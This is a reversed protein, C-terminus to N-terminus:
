EGTKAFINRWLYTDIICFQSNWSDLNWWAINVSDDVTGGFRFRGTSDVNTGDSKWTTSISHGFKVSTVIDDYITVKNVVYVGFTSSADIGSGLAVNQPMADVASAIDKVASWNTRFLSGIRFDANFKMPLDFLLNSTNESEIEMGSSTEVRVGIPVKGVWYVLTYVPMQSILEKSTQNSAHREGRINAVADISMTGDAVCEYRRLKHNDITLVISMGSNVSIHGSKVTVPMNSEDTVSMDRDISIINWQPDIAMLEEASYAAVDGQEDQTIVVAPHIINDDSYRTYIDGPVKPEFVRLTMLLEVDADEFVASIDADETNLALVKGTNKVSTVKRVFPETNKTRWVCIYDQKSIDADISLLYDVSVEMRTTDDSAIVVDTAHQFENYSLVVVNQAATPVDFQPDYTPPDDDECSVLSLVAIVGLLVAILRSLTIDKMKM